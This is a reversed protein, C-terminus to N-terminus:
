APKRAVIVRPIGALDAVTHLNHWGGLLARVAAGQTYGIEILLWGGPRLAELAQPILRRIVDLGDDGAFVAMPPEYHKVVEQVQDAENRGVYPPNSVVFDFSADRVVSALVDSKAFHVGAALRQANLRAVELAAPSLDVAHVEAQVEALGLERALTIAIAGSGTGVDILKLRPGLKFHRVLDLVAEILHETEPRPILVAPTVLFDAKWFEQHGTLYQLPEGAARRAVLTDYQSQEASTLEREPHAFLYARDCGLVHFVLVEAHLRAEESAAAQLQAIASHVAQRLQVLTNYPAEDASLRESGRSSL